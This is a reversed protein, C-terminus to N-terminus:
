GALGPVGGASKAARVARLVAMALAESAAAGVSDVSAQATGVSLAFTMDGDSMTNVPSITRTVGISALAALKNTQVRDLRANTAVVALTTNGRFAPNEVGGHRLAAASDVFERSTASMRAGAVIKGNAPDIVDGVANVAVLAGVMVGSGLTLSASGIGSKMARPLGFLKGITAGTGAGVNGEAVAADSAAEVAKEGMERTPRVDAKGIALDYLIAGPVIPVRAAGANFGIGRKELAQRVGCSAELGFASGGALVIAHVNAAVHGPHLTDLEVSGTASGRVDVGGVADTGCLVVTCGTLADLDTVHGVLIGPVDTLGKM